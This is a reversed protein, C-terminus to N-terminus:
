RGLIIPGNLRQRVTADAGIVVQLMLGDTHKFLSQPSLQWGM